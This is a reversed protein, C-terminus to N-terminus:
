RRWVGLTRGLLLFCGVVAIAEIGATLSAENLTAHEGRDRVFAAAAAACTTIALLRDARLFTSPIRLLRRIYELTPDAALAGPADLRRTLARARLVTISAACLLAPGALILVASGRGPLAAGASFITAAAAVLACGNRRALLLAEAPVMPSRRLLFAQVLALGGAVGALQAFVFFSIAWWVPAAAASSATILALTSGGTVLVGSTTAFTSRVSRRAAVEADFAAALASPPGFARVAEDESRETAADSLHDHCEQLFRRRTTGRVHLTARLESMFGDVTREGNM